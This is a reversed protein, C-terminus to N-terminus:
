LGNCEKQSIHSKDEQYQQDQQSLQNLTSTSLEPKQEQKLQLYPDPKIEWHQQEYKIVHDQNTVFLSDTQLCNHLSANLALDNQLQESKEDLNNM